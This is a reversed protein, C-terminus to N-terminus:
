QHTKDRKAYAKHLKTWELSGIYAEIKVKHVKYIDVIENDADTLMAAERARLMRDLIVKKQADDLDPAIQLFANYTRTMGPKRSWAEKISDIQEATLEKSLNEVFTKYAPELSSYIAEIKHAILESPFEDKPVISRAQRWQSWLPKLQPDNEKHWSWLVVLWDGVITKVRATKAPDELKIAALVRGTKADLRKQTAEGASAAAPAPQPGAAQAAASLAGALLLASILTLFLKPRM